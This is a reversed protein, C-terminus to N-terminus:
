GCRVFLPSVRWYGMGVGFAFFRATRSLDYPQLDDHPGIRRKSLQALYSLLPQKVNFIRVQCVLRDAGQAVADGLASLCGNTLALTVHPHTEFSQQYARAVAFSAM